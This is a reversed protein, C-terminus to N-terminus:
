ILSTWLRRSAHIPIQGNEFIVCITYFSTSGIGSHYTPKWKRLPHLTALWSSTHSQLPQSSIATINTPKISSKINKITYTPYFISSFDSFPIRSRFWYAIATKTPHLIHDHILFFSCVACRIPGGIKLRVISYFQLNTLSIRKGFRQNSGISYLLKLPFFM